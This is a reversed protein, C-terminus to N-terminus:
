LCMRLRSSTIYQAMDDHILFLVPEIKFKVKWIKSVIPWFDFYYPNSNSGMVVKDIKM